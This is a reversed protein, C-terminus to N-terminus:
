LTQPCSIKFGVGSPFSIVKAAPTLHPLVVRLVFGTNKKYFSPKELKIFSHCEKYSIFNYARIPSLRKKHLKAQCWGKAM